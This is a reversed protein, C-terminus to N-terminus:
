NAIVGLPYFLEFGLFQGINRLVVWVLLFAILQKWWADQGKLQRGSETAMIWVGVALALFMVVQSGHWGDDIKLVPFTGKRFMWEQFWDPWNAFGLKGYFVKTDMVAKTFGSISFLATAIVARISLRKWEIM